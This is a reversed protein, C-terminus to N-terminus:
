LSSQIINTTPTLSPTVTITPTPTPVYVSTQTIPLSSKDIFRTILEYPTHTITVSPSVTPTPRTIVKESPKISISPTISPIAATKKDEEIVKILISFSKSEEKGKATVISSGVNLAKIKGLNDVLVVESKESVWTIENNSNSTGGDKYTINPVLVKEEGIKITIEKILEVSLNKIYETEKKEITNSDIKKLIFFIPNDISCSIFPISFILTM